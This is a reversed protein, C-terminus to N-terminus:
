CCLEIFVTIFEVIGQLRQEFTMETTDTKVMDLVMEFGMGM